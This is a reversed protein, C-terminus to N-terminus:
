ALIYIFSIVDPDTKKGNGPSNTNNSNSNTKRGATLRAERQPGHDSKIKRM